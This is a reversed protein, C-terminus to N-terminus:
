NIEFSATTKRQVVEAYGRLFGMPAGKVSEVFTTSPVPFGLNYANIGFDRRLQMTLSDEQTNGIGAVFSDPSQELSAPLRRQGNRYGLSDMAFVEARHQALGQPLMPDIALLDGHPVAM